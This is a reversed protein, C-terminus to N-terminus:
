DENLIDFMSVGNDGNRVSKLHYEMRTIARSDYNPINRKKLFKEIDNIENTM